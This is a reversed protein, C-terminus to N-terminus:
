VECSASPVSRAGSDVVVCPCSHSASVNPDSDGEGALLALMAVVLRILALAVVGIPHAQALVTAPAAPVGAVPLGALAPASGHSTVALACPLSARPGYALTRSSWRPVPGNTGVKGSSKRMGAIDVLEVRSEDTAGTSNGELLLGLRLVAIARKIRLRALLENRCIPSPTTSAATPQLRGLLCEAIASRGLTRRENALRCLGNVGASQGEQAGAPGLEVSYLPGITALDRLGSRDDQAEHGNGTEIKTNGVPRGLLDHIEDESTRHGACRQTRGIPSRYSGWDALKHAICVASM